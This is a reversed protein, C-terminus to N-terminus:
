QSNEVPCIHCLKSIVCSRLHPCDNQAGSRQHHGWSWWLFRLFNVDVKAVKVQHFMGEIDTMFAISGQRFRHLVGLLSNTLDPGQLLENNLSTGGYASACDFVVRLTKKRPHYVGHHPVFWVNGNEYGLQDQPIVEAYGKSIVDSM